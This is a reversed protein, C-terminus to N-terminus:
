FNNELEDKLDIIYGAIVSGEHGEFPAWVTVKDANLLEVERLLENYTMDVDFESLFVGLAVREYTTQKNESM